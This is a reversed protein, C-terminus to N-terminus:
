HTGCKVTLGGVQKTAFTLAGKGAGPRIRSHGTASSFGQSQSQSQSVSDSTSLASSMGDNNGNGNSSHRRQPQLLPFSLGDLSHSGTSFAYHEAVSTSTVPAAASTSAPGTLAAAASASSSAASFDFGRLSSQRQQPWGGGGATNLASAAPSGRGVQGQVHGQGHGHIRSPSNVAAAATAVGRRRGPSIVGHDHGLGVVTAAAPAPLTTQVYTRIMMHDIRSM